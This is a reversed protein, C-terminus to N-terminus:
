IRDASIIEAQIFRTCRKVSTIALYTDAISTDRRILKFADIMENDSLENNEELRAIARTKRAPSLVSADKSDGMASRALDRVAEAMEFGADSQTPKRGHACKAPRDNIDSTAAVRKHPLFVTSLSSVTSNTSSHSLFSHQRAPTQTFAASLTLSEDEEEVENDEDDGKARDGETDNDGENAPRVVGPFFATAGTAVQGEILDLVNDYLPFRKTKWCKLSPKSKILDEWVEATATALCREADWGFGSKERISKVAKFDKKVTSWRTKCMESTKKPGKSISQTLRAAAAKYADNHFGGNDTQFGASKHEKLVTLLILDDATSWVAKKGGAKKSDVSTDQQNETTDSM